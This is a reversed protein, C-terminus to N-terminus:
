LDLENPIRRARPPLEALRLDRITDKHYEGRVRLYNWMILLSVALDTTNEACASTTGDGGRATIAKHPIRRARPPLEEIETPTLITHLYEGRVRLYNLDSRGRLYYGPTNEACASTTGQTRGQLFRLRLIRRARPPLELLPSGSSPTAPYEGRVRLYNVGGFNIPLIFPQIRRARPPLELYDRCRQLRELYEGRVRLYNGLLQFIRQPLTTNEACASTTGRERLVPGFPHPIRRARPPLEVADGM